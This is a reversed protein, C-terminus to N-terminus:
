LPIGEREIALPTLRERRKWEEFAAETMVLPSIVVGGIQWTLDGALDTVARDDEVTLGDLLVLCDVDSDERAQGRAYSGFLRVARLRPGFRGRLGTVFADLTQQVLSPLPLGTRDAVM